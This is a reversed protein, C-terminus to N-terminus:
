TASELRTGPCFRVSRMSFRVFRAAERRPAVTLDRKSIENRSRFARVADLSARLSGLGLGPFAERVLV